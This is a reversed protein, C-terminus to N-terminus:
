GTTRRARTAARAAGDDDLVRPHIGAEAVMRGDVREADGRERRNGSDAGVPPVGPRQAGDVARRPAPGLALEGHECSRAATARVLRPMPGDHGGRVRGAPRAVVCEGDHQPHDRGVAGAVVDVGAPELERAAREAGLQPAAPGVANMRIVPLGGRATGCPAPGARAAADDLIAHPPGVILVPPQQVDGHRAEVALPCEEAQDAAAGVHGVAALELLSQHLGLPRLGDTLEGAADGVVEVVQERADDAVHGQQLLLRPEGVHRPLVQVLDLPRGVAGRAEGALQQCEAAPLHQGRAHEVEILQHGAAQRAEAPHGTLADLHERTRRGVDIRDDRVRGLHLLHQDLEGVVGALGHGIAAGELQDGALLPEVVAGGGPRPAGRPPMYM